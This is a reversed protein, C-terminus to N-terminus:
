AVRQVTGDLRAHGDRVTEVTAGLPANQKVMACEQLGESRLSGREYRHRRVAGKQVFIPIEEAVRRAHAPTWLVMRELQVRRM